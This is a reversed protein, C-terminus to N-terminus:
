SANNIFKQVSAILNAQYRLLEEQHRGSNVVERAAEAIEHLANAVNAELPNAPNLYLEVENISKVIQSFKISRNVELDTIALITSVGSVLHRKKENITDIQIASRHQILLKNLEAEISTKLNRRQYYGSLLGGSLGGVFAILAAQLAIDM